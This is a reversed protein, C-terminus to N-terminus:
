GAEAHLGAAAADQESPAPTEALVEHLVQTAGAIRLLTERLVATDNELARLREEGLEAERRLVALRDTLRTRLDTM